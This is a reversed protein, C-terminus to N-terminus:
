MSDDIRPVSTTEGSPSFDSASSIVSGESYDAFLADSVDDINKNWATGYLSKALEESQVWRLVGGKGIAYVKPVTQLKIMKIGPRYTVNKGLQIGALETASITKVGSFDTYWSKYVRENPFAHRKGDAGYYYVASNESSKILDGAQVSSRGAPSFTIIAMEKLQIEGVTVTVVSTGTKSSSIKFVAKGNADTLASSPSISDDTGRSSTLYVNKGALLSGANNKVTVTISAEGNSAIPSVSAEVKSESDSPVPSNLAEASVVFTAKLFTSLVTSGSTITFVSEGAKTSTVIFTVAGSSNTLATAPTITDESRNSKVVVERRGLATADNDYIKVTIVAQTAGDAPISQPDLGAQSRSPSVINAGATSLSLASQASSGNPLNFAINEDNYGIREIRVYYFGGNLAFKVTGASDTTKQADSTGAAMMDNALVTRAMDSFVRVTADTLYEGAQNKVTIAYTPNAVSCVAYSGAPVSNGTGCPTNSSIDIVTASSETGGSVSKLQTNADGSETIFGSREVLLPGTASTTFYYTGASIKQPSFGAHHVVADNVPNGSSDKIIVKTRYHLTLPSSTKDQFGANLEGTAIINSYLYQPSTIKLDCNRDEVGTNIALEYIGGGLSQSAAVSPSSCAELSVSPLASAELPAGTEDVIKIRLNFTEAKVRTGPLISLFMAFLTLVAIKSKLNKTKIFM